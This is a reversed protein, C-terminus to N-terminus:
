SLIHGDTFANGRGLLSSFFIRTGVMALSFEVFIIIRLNLNLVELIWLSLSIILFLFLFIRLFISFFYLEM